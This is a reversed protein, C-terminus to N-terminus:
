AEVVLYIMDACPNRAPNGKRDPENVIQWGAKTGCPNVTEVWKLIQDNSWDKPVCLQLSFVNQNLVTPNAM